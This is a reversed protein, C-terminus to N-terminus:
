GYATVISTRESGNGGGCSVELIMYNLESKLEVISGCAIAGTASLGDLAAEASTRSSSSNSGGSRLTVAGVTKLLM